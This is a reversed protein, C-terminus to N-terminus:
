FMDSALERGRMLMDNATHLPLAKIQLQLTKRSESDCRRSDVNSHRGEFNRPDTVVQIEIIPHPELKIMQSTGLMTKRQEIQPHSSSLCAPHTSPGLRLVQRSQIDAIIESM